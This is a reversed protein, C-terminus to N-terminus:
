TFRSLLFSVSVAVTLNLGFGLFFDWGHLRMVRGSRGASTSSNAYNDAVVESLASVGLVSTELSEVSGSFFKSVGEKGSDVFDFASFVPTFGYSFIEGRM